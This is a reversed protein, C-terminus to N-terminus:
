RSSKGVLRVEIDSAEIILGSQRFATLSDVRPVAKMLQTCLGDADQQYHQILGDLNEFFDINDITM